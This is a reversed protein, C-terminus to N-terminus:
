FTAQGPPTVIPNVALALEKLADAFGVRVFGFETVLVQAATDKGHQAYGTIGVIM